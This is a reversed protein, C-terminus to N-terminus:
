SHVVLVVVREEVGFLNKPITRRPVLAWKGVLEIRLACPQLITEAMSSKQLTCLSQNCLTAHSEPRPSFQMRFQDLFHLQNEENNSIVKSSGLVVEDKKM